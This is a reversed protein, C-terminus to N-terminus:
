SHGRGSLQGTWQAGEGAHVWDLQLDVDVAGVEVIKRRGDLLVTDTFVAAAM